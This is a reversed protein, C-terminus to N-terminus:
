ERDTRQVFMWRHGEVYSPMPIIPGTRTAVM